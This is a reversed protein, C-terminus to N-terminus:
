PKTEKTQQEPQAALAAAWHRAWSAHLRDSAAKVGSHNTIADVIAVLEEHSLPTFVEPDYPAILERAAGERAQKAATALADRLQPAKILIWDNGALTETHDFGECWVFPNDFTADAEDSEREEVPPQKRASVAGATFARLLWKGLCISDEHEDHERETHVHQLWTEAEKIENFSEPLNEHELAVARIGFREGQAKLWDCKEKLSHYHKKERGCIPCAFSGRDAQQIDSNSM